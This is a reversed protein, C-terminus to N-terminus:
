NRSDGRPCRKSECIGKCHQVIQNLIFFDHIQDQGRRERRPCEHTDKGDTPPIDLIPAPPVDDYKFEVYGNGDEFPPIKEVMGYVPRTQPAITNTRYTRGMFEGAVIPVQADGLAAQMLVHKRPYGDWNNDRIVNLWGGSESVDWLQEIVSMGIRLDRQNYIQMKFAAHYPGFDKSRSLLLSFPCGPVGLVGHSLDTSSAFYGGGLVSGQSNGYYGIKTENTIFFKTQSSPMIFVEDTALKGGGPKILRLMVAKDLWGQQTRDPISPFEGLRTVFVRLANLVDYKAMGNWDTALIIWDYHNAMLRLYEDKSEKRSGFLGHGYQMILKAPVNKLVLSCPIQITFFIQAKGNLFPMNKIGKTGIVKSKTETFISNPGPGPHVLYNDNEFYGNITKYITVNINPDNVNCTKEVVSTVEFKDPGFPFKKLTKDRIYEYRGLSEERSTTHFYFALQLNNDRQFTTKQELEPFVFNNYVNAREKSIGLKSIDNNDRLAQFAPSGSAIKRVVNDGDDEYLNRVAVIYTTNFELAHAPQMILLDPEVNPVGFSLDYSDRDVFHPVLEGTKANLLVTTANAFLSHEIHRWNVLDNTSINTDFSFLIPAVTSFGDAKNWPEPNITGWRTKPFSNPKFQVRKGTYTTEDNVMNYDSPFPLLCAQMNLPDCQNIADIDTSHGNDKQYIIFIDAIGFVFLIFSTIVSLGLLIKGIQDYSTSKTKKTSIIGNNLSTTNNNNNNNNDGNNNSGRLVNAYEIIDSTDEEYNEGHKKKNPTNNRSNNSGNSSRRGISDYKFEDNSLLSSDDEELEELHLHSYLRINSEQGEDGECCGCRTGFLCKFMSKLLFFQCCISLTTLSCYLLGTWYVWALYINLGGNPESLLSYIAQVGISCLFILSGLDILISIIVTTSHSITPLTQGYHDLEHLLTSLLVLLMGITFPLIFCFLPVFYFITLTIILYRTFALLLVFYSPWHHAEYFFSSRSRATASFSSSSTPM